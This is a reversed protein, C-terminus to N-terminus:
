IAKAEGQILLLAAPAALLPTLRKCRQALTRFQINVAHPHFYAVIM